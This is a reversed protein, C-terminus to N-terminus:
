SQGDLRWGGGTAKYLAIWRRVQDQRLSILTNEADLASRWAQERDLLSATGAKWAADVAQFHRRYGEVARAADSDRKQATDLNVLAQEVELVVTRVKDRWTAVAKAHAAEADDVAAARRGADFLPLSLGPGYSWTNNTGSGVSTLGISGTLSLSPLRNAEAVGIEANTAAVERELSALDPRQRLLDAPVTSISLDAPVPLPAVGEGLRARLDPEAMGSLSVLSKVLLDCAGRQQTAQSAAQAASAESLSLDGPATFGVQGAIRTADLTARQSAAQRDAADSLLRCGRYQVYYDAVEAALTVRANDWDATRAQLRAEAAEGTRRVKGFLDLEWSADLRATQTESIISTSGTPQRTRTDAANATVSPFLGARGTTLAARARDIQALAAELTPSNQEARKQLDTLVPDNFQAWWDLLAQERGGHPLPAQWGDAVAPAPPRYDPGLTCGSLLLGTGLVTLLRCRMLFVGIRAYFGVHRMM